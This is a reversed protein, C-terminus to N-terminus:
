HLHSLMALLLSLGLLFLRSRKYLNFLIYVLPHSRMLDLLWAAEASWRIYSRSSIRALNDVSPSGTDAVGGISLLFQLLLIVSEFSLEFLSLLLKIHAAFLALIIPSILM